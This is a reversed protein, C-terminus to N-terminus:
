LFGEARLLTGAQAAAVVLADIDHESHVASLLGSCKTNIDFGLVNMAMRFRNALPQPRALFTELSREPAVDAAQVGGFLTHFASFDGYWALPLNEARAMENLRERALSGLASARECGGIRELERLVATGTAMSVPNGTFTGQHQVKPRGRRRQPDFDIMDLIEARGAVAGGPMGGCLVKALTTLDPNLDYVSQAGGMSVRFGSLVEDLIFLAGTANAAQQIKRLFAAPTPVVGFHTGVPEVIFAAIEHGHRDAARELSTSDNPRLLITQAAIESLVGPAAEGAFQATYGSAAHDHWGHYNSAFRVIKKRGTFARALRLALLTAETGSGTFRVRDARPLHRLVTRALEVELPQNAAFQVGRAAADTIAAIFAPHGHGLMNAGHGGFFDLYSNGDVDWKCVGKARDVYIGYPEFHRTDSVIGGALVTRAQRALM